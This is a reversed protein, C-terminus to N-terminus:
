VALINKQIALTDPYGNMGYEWTHLNIPIPIENPPEEHVSGLTGKIYFRSPSSCVIENSIKTYLHHNKRATKKEECDPLVHDM